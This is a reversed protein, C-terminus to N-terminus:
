AARGAFVGLQARSGGAQMLRSSLVALGEKAERADGALWADLVALAPLTLRRAREGAYNEAGACAAIGLKFRRLRAGQGASGHALAAHLDVYPWFGPRWIGEFADSLRAWRSAVDIGSRELRWLLAAADCADLPWREAAQLLSGDLIGIAGEPQGNDLDFMALHWANHTRMRSPVAWHARQARMWAAGELSRGAEALAHAVAHVGLPCTPDRALAERGLVEAYAADGIEAHAFSTLAQTYGYGPQGPRLARLARDAIECARRHDGVFFCCSLALRLALTDEPTREVISEYLALARLPEGQLWSEGAHLHLQEVQQLRRGELRDVAQEVQPLAGPLKAIVAAGMRICEARAFDPDDGEVGRLLELPDGLACLLQDTAKRTRESIV